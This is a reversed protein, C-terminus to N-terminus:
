GSSEQFTQSSFVNKRLFCGQASETFVVWMGVDGDKNANFGIKDSFKM